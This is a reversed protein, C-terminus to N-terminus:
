DVLQALEEQIRDVLQLNQFSLNHGAPPDIGGLCDSGLSSKLGVPDLALAPSLGPGRKQKLVAFDRMTRSRSACNEAIKKPNELRRFHNPAVAASAGCVPQGDDKAALSARWVARQANGANICEYIYM